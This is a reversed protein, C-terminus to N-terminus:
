ESSKGFQKRRAIEYRELLGHIIEHQKALKKDKEVLAQQLELLMKKLQEPADPLSNADIKM